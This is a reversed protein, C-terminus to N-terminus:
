KLEPIRGPTYPAGAKEMQDELSKIDVEKLKKLESIIDETEETVIKYQEKMTITPPESSAYIGYQIYSMRSRITQPVAANRSSITKDQELQLLISKLENDMGKAEAFMEATAKPTIHLAKRINDVREELEHAMDIIGQAVRNLEAFDSRLKMLESNVKLGEIDKYLPKVVFDVPGSLQTLEGDVSKSLIVKYKGPAVLYGSPGNYLESENNGYDSLTTGHTRLNWSIRNVGPKPPKKFRRIVNDREDYVTFLLYPKEETDEKRLEDYTPFSLDGGSKEFKKEEKKRMAKRTRITDKLFYTFVTGYSPNPATYYAEGQSAKRGGGLPRSEIYLLADKVPFIYASTNNVVNDIDRLPSYDDLIYFGRGFTGLVLDNERKQISLDKVAIAPLGAKLKVWEIGGDVTFYVGFETGIFLLDPNIHDEAMSYVTEDGALNGNIARWSRGADDSRLIYPKFDAKKHNDFCAYVTNAKYQSSLLCSVYTGEPVSPFEEIKRWENGGDETVNILGDDTGAYILGEKLPSESLSVINGFISTSANKAVADVSWVKDMVKLNNRDIQRTLDGSVAKWSNGRDDSRFLINAAFYLRTNSHPSIILPSDWNWRYPDDSKGEMPKISIREGNEKNFRVLWGYQSQSYVINPNKPDIAIEFGDGGKTIFWDSNVIGNASTTRSPGGQTNNDQTGGYVNYFPMANDVAVRYFQTVPLNAKFDWNKGGDYSEYIGGDGGILYHDTDDPDLWLAHDDVHRSKNGLREFSEGGDRTIKTWTDLSLFCEADKPHAVLEQYYQPSTSVYSNMKKWSEGRDTSRYIGGKKDPAEIIAYLFNANVPSIALGIRGVDGGPLGKKIKRWTTGADTSKYLASEPGGNILTWVHRRRQYAVAYLVNHDEHDMVIDSVGTNESIDLIREWNEGGNTSKYLGREGGPGWLPGQSAVYVINSNRPDVVINGIHESTKLGMNKWSKGGDLSKYVGDGYSVSRQSNNEGTGVWVVNHNNPDMTVCGISYSKQNDFVPTWTIGSNVTKWVGGSAVGVYYESTKEPNVAFDIIRGSMLAPGIGRFKLGNVLKSTIRSEDDTSSEKQATATVVFSILVILFISGAKGSLNNIIM